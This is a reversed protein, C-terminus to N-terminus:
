SAIWPRRPSARRRHRRGGEVADWRALYPCDGDQMCPLVDQLITTFIRRHPAGRGIPRQNARGLRIRSRAPNSLSRANFKLRKRISPLSISTYTERRVPAHTSQLQSTLDFATEQQMDHKGGIM